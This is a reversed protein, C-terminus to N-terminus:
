LKLVREGLTSNDMPLSFTFKTGKAKSSEVHIDGGCVEVMGRVIALGLGIGGHERTLSSEVQYFRDFIRSLEAPPIGIGTDSISIVVNDENAQAKVVVQGSEPTFKIANHMLNMVILDFKQRDAIVAPFNPPIDITVSLQKEDALLSMDKMIEQMVQPLHLHDTSLLAVGSELYNLNLMDEILSRLRMANRTISIVFDQSQGKTEEELVSAYGMLITLPTRLEHAAINIFERKMHDLKQLEDYAVQIETFLRANELAIGAQSSLVSLFDGDGPAFPQDERGLILVGLNSEKSKIPTAIISEVGLAQLLSIYKQNEDSTSFQLQQEQQYVLKALYECPPSAQSTNAKEHCTQYPVITTDEFTYLGTLTASTEGQSIELLRQLVSQVDVTGMLTENLEFLPILSRLRFNEKRLREKETAKFVTLSLEDPTFPKLLFEDIGLKLADLVMDITGYGTMAICIVGPDSKRLARAIDLGSLGPMKIDTLLLDFRQQHALDIADYGNHATSVQYGKAKLIRECLELVDLEDDVILVQESAM